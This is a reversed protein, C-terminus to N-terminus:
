QPNYPVTYERKIGAEICFDILCKSTYEGGNDSRLTKIKKRTLNEIQAKFEQFRDLVEKSEKSKLFYIWTKKSYDDIFIVYYLYGSLSAVTMTGCLDSHVLDLIGKSKRDNSSFMGKANKGLTCGRCIGDHEVRLPPLGTVM